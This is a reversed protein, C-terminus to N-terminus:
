CVCLGDLDNEMFFAMAYSQEPILVAPWWRWHTIARYLWRVRIRRFLGLALQDLPIRPDVWPRGNWTGSCGVTHRTQIFTRVVTVDTQKTGRIIGLHASQATRVVLNITFLEDLADIM